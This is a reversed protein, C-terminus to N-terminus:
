GLSFQRTSLKGAVRVSVVVLALAPFTIVVVIATNQHDMRSSAAPKVLAGFDPYTVLCENASSMEFFLIDLLSTSCVSTHRSLSHLLALIVVFFYFLRKMLLTTIIM